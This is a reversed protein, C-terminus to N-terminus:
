QRTREIAKQVESGSSLGNNVIVYTSVAIENAAVPISGLLIGPNFIGKAHNGLSKTVVVLDRGAVVVSTSVHLTDNHQSRTTLCNILNISFDYFPVDYWFRDQLTHTPSTYWVEMTRNFRAVSVMSSGPRATNPGALDMFNWKALSDYWYANKIEGRPSIWWIEIHDARRTL